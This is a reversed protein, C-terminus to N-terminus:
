TRPFIVVGTGIIDKITTAAGSAKAVFGAYARGAGGPRNSTKQTGSLAM